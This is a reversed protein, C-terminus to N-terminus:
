TEEEEKVEEKKEWVEEDKIEEWMEAIKKGMFGDIFAGVIFNIVISATQPIVSLPLLLILGVATLAVLM